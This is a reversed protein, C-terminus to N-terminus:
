GLLYFLPYLFIWICDVMHWYLAAAELEAHYAPTTKGRAVRVAMWLMAIVAGLLHLVHLGTTFYYLTFFLRAGRTPLEAFAYYRGPLAGDAAHHAYEVGKLVLFGTALAVGALLLGICLGIRATRIAYLALIVTFSSAILLSTNLTGIWLVGHRVGASFEAAYETRYAVYLAFLGAFLLVESTIFLWMGFHAAHRQKGLDEFQVELRLPAATPGPASM